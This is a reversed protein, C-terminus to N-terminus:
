KSPARSSTKAKPARMPQIAVGPKTKVSPEMLSKYMTATHFEPGLPMSMDLKYQSGHVYPFPLDPVTYKKVRKQDVRESVFVHKMKSDKRPVSKKGHIDSVTIAASAKATGNSIKRKKKAPESSQDGSGGAWSNWGPLSSVDPGLIAALPDKEKELLRKKEEEEHKVMTEKDKAFDEEIGDEDVVIQSRSGVDEHFANVFLAHLESDRKSVMDDDEDMMQELNPEVQLGKKPRKRSEKATEANKQDVAKRQRRSNAASVSLWPNEEMEVDEVIKAVSGSKQAPGTQSKPTQRKVEGGESDSSEQVGDSDKASTIGDSVSSADDSDDIGSSPIKKRSTTEMLLVKGQHTAKGNNVDFSMASNGQKAVSAKSRILQPVDEFGMSKSKSSSKKSAADVDSAPEDAGAGDSEDAEDPSGDSRQDEYDQIANKWDEVGTGLAEVRGKGKMMYQKHRLTMREKAREYELKAVEEASNGSGKQDVQNDKGEGKEKKKKKLAKRFTKSKIKAWRKMKQQMFHEYARLKGAVLLTEINSELDNGGLANDNAGAAASATSDDQVSEGGKKKSKMTEEMYSGVSLLEEISKKQKNKQIKELDPQKIDVAIQALTAQSDSPRSTLGEFRVTRTERMEKVQPIFAEIETKAAEYAVKRETRSDRTMQKLLAVKNERSALSKAQKAAEKPLMGLIERMSLASTRVAANASRRGMKRGQADGDGGDYGVQGDQDDDSLVDQFSSFASAFKKSTPRLPAERKRPKEVANESDSAASDDSGGFAADLEEFDSDETVSMTQAAAALERVSSRKRAM